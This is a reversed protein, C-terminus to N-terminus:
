AAPPVAGSVMRIKLWVFFGTVIAGPSTDKTRFLSLLPVLAPVRAYAEEFTVAVAGAGEGDGESEAEGDAGGLPEGDGDSEAVAAGVMAGSGVIGGIVIWGPPKAIRVGASVWHSTTLSRFPGSLGPVITVKVSSTLDPAWVAEVCTVAVNAVGCSGVSRSVTAGGDADQRRNRSKTPPV